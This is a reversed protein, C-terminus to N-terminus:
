EYKDILSEAATYFEHLRKANPCKVGTEYYFYKKMHASFARSIYLLEKAFVKVDLDDQEAIGDIAKLMLEWDDDGLVDGHRLKLILPLLEDFLKTM